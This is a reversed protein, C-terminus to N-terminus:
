IAYAGRGGATRPYPNFAQWPDPPVFNGVNDALADQLFQPPQFGPTLGRM